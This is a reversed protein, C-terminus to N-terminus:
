GDEPVVVWTGKNWTFMNDSLGYARSTLVNDRIDQMIELADSDYQPVFLVLDPAPVTMIIPGVEATVAQWLETDLLLANERAGDLAVFYLGEDSGTIVAHRAKYMLNEMAVGHLAPAAIGTQAMIEATVTASYTPYDIVYTIMLDGALPITILDSAGDLSGLHDINRIEPYIQTLAFADPANIPYPSIENTTVAEDAFASGFWACLFVVFVYQM